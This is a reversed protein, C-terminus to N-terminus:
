GTPPAPQADVHIRLLATVNDSHYIPGDPHVLYVRGPVVLWMWEHTPGSLDIPDEEYKLPIGPYLQCLAPLVQVPDGKKVDELPARSQREYQPNHFYVM